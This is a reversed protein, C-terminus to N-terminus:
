SPTATWTQPNLTGDITAQAVDTLHLNHSRAYNRLRTFAEAMDIGAREFVVGKAQEIIIRSTLAHSLQENVHKTDAAARQQLVSITALDAFARAVVLDADDMPTQDASVLNLAGITTDRLRLPLALASQFGAELAVTAFRPWRGTGPRMIEHDVRQGTRYADLCPGEKAQLEFLELVRMAESSSAVLRLDGSPSALMVGAATAGLVHVCRDALGTLLDVVDYDAVLTDALDVLSQVVDAERTM